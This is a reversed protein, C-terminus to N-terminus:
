SAHYDEMRIKVCMRCRRGGDSRLHLNKGSLRHGRACHTRKIYKAAKGVGRLVNTRHVVAELHEPNVCSTVRCLHDLECEDPIEGRWLQYAVRHALEPKGSLNFLGYGRPQCSGTWIWCGSETVPMIFSRFRVEPNSSKHLYHGSPM